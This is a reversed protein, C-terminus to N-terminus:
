QAQPKKISPLVHRQYYDHAAAKRAVESRDQSEADMKPAFAPHDPTARKRNPAPDGGFRNNGHTGPLCLVVIFWIYAIAPIIMIAVLMMMAGGQNGSSAAGAMMFGGIFGAVLSVLTPMFIFWGSRDTDHLRRITVALNPLFFVFLSAAFAYGLYQMYQPNQQFFVEMMDPNNAASLFQPDSAIAAGFAIQLGIYLLFQFLFFWWYESRSARDSFNFMRAYARGVARFPGM